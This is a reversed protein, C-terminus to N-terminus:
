VALELGLSLFFKDLGGSGVDDASEQHLLSAEQYQLSHGVKKCYFNNQYSFYLPNM